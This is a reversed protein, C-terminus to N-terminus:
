EDYKEGKRKKRKGKILLNNLDYNLQVVKLSEPTQKQGCM